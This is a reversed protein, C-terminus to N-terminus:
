MKPRLYVICLYQNALVRFFLLSDGRWIHQCTGPELAGPHVALIAQIIRTRKPQHGRRRKNKKAPVQDNAWTRAAAGRRQRLLLIFFNSIHLPFSYIKGTHLTSNDPHAKPRLRYKAFNKAFNPGKGFFFFRSIQPSKPLLGHWSAAKAFNRAFNRKCIPHVSGALV